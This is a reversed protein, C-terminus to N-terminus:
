GPKQETRTPRTYLFLPLGASEAELVHALSVPTEGDILVGQAMEGPPLPAVKGAALGGEGVM